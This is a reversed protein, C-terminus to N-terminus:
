IHAIITRLLAKTRLTMMQELTLATMIMRNHILNKIFMQFIIKILPNVTEVAAAIKNTRLTTKICM